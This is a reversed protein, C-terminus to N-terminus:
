IEQASRLFDDLNDYLLSSGRSWLTPGRGSTGLIESATRLFDGLVGATMVGGIPRM